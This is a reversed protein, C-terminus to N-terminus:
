ILLGNVRAWEIPCRAGKKVNCTPCLLQLNDPWNSGGNILAVIHDVHFGTKELKAHCTACKKKQLEFLREIDQKTHSGPAGKKLARRNRQRENVRARNNEVYRAYKAKFKEKNRQYFEQYQVRLREKERERYKLKTERVKEPNEKAYNKSYERRQEATRAYYEKQWARIKEVNEAQWKKLRELRKVRAWESEM